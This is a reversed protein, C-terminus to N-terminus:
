SSAGTRIHHRTTLLTARSPSCVAAGSYFETFRVGHAALGDLAPTRAPGGYCGPGRWGLDDALLIVVNPRAAPQAPLVSMSGLAVLLLFWAPKV